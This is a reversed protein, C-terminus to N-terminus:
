GARRRIGFASRDLRPPPGDPHERYWQECAMEWSLSLRQESTLAAYYARDFAALGDPPIVGGTWSRRRQEAREEADMGPVIGRAQSRRASSRTGAVPDLDTSGRREEAM